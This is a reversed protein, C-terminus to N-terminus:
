IIPNRCKIRCKFAESTQSVGSGKMIAYKTILFNLFLGLALMILIVVIHLYWTKNFVLIATRISDCENLSWRFAIIVGAVVIGSIISLIFLRLYKLDM